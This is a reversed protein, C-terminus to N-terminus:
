ALYEESWGNMGPGLTAAKMGHCAPRISLTFPKSGIERMFVDFARASEYIAIEGYMTGLDSGTLICGKVDEDRNGKHFLITTRGPVDTVHIAQYGGRIFLRPECHYLGDPICSKGVKNELWGDELTYVMFPEHDPPELAIYGLTQGGDRFSYRYRWLTVLKSM